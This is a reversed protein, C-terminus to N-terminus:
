RLASYKGVLVLGVDIEVLIILPLVLFTEFCFSCM